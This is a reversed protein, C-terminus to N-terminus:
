RVFTFPSTAGLYGNETTVSVILNSDAIVSGNSWRDPIAFSLTANGTANTTVQMTNSTLSGATNSLRINLRMNPPFGGITLQVQSNARGTPPSLSITPRFSNWDINPVTQRPTYALQAWASYVPNETVAVLYLTSDTIPSGNSWVGPIVVRMSVQGNADTTATAYSGASYLSPSAGIRVSVRTNAPFGAINVVVQTGETGSTSSLSTYPQIVTPQTPTTPSTSNQPIVLVQGVYLANTSTMGNAAALVQLNVGYRTAISFLTDGVQVTHTQVGSPPTSGGASVPIQTILVNLSVYNANVWGRTGNAMQVNIWTGAVNRGIISFRTGRTVVTQIRFSLGPGQRVNLARVNSTAAANSAPTAQTTTTVSLTSIAVNARIYASSVWGQRGNTLRVQVWSGDSNRGILQLVTNRTTRTLIINSTGPGSRVNLVDTNVYAAAQNNPLAPSQGPLTPGNPNSSINAWSVYAYAVGGYERFDVQLHHRGETLTVDASLTQGPRPQELTNIFNNHFDVTVAIGDDALVTFRYTGATFYPDSGWRVSFNDAPVGNAPAANGWNFGIVNDQRRLVPDGIFYPNNFYEATWSPSPNNPGSDSAFSRPPNSVAISLIALMILVSVLRKMYSHSRNGGSKQNITIPIIYLNKHNEGVSISLSLSGM